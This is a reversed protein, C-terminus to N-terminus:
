KGRGGGMSGVGLGHKLLHALLLRLQLLHEVAHLCHQGVDGCLRLGLHDRCCCCRAEVHLLDLLLLLLPALLLLRPLLLLHLLAAAASPHHRRAPRPPCGIIFAWCPKTAVLGLLLLLLLLLL